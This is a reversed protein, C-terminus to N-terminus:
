TQKQGKASMVILSRVSQKANRLLLKPLFEEIFKDESRAQEVRNDATEFEYECVPSHWIHIVQGAAATESWELVIVLTRM